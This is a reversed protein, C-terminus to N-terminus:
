DLTERRKPPVPSVKLAAGTKAPQRAKSQTRAKAKPRVKTPAKAAPESAASTVATSEVAAVDTPATPATPATPPAVPTPAPAAASPATSTPAATPTADRMALVLALAAAVVVGAGIVLGRRSRMRPLTRTPPLSIADPRPPVQSANGSMPGSNARTTRTPRTFATAPLLAGVDETVRELAIDDDLTVEGRLARAILAMPPRKAPDGDLCRAVLADFAPSVPAISRVRPATEVLQPSYSDTFGDFPLAGTVSEFLMVGLAWVDVSPAIVGGVLQEPAMYALTGIRRSTVLAANDGLVKAIGFDVIRPSGAHLMVNAPKLDRHVLGAAHVAHMGDAIGAFLERAGREDLRGSALRTALDGGDIREMVIYYRNSAADHAADLIRVVNPHTVSRARAEVHFAGDADDRLLKLALRSGLVPHSAAYVESMGGRGLLAGLTYAGVTTPAHAPHVLPAPM